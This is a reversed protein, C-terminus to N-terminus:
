LTARDLINGDVNFDLIYVLGNEYDDADDVTHAEHIGFDVFNDGVTNKKNYVWGVIQGAKTREFGLSEYVDNLFLYGRSRLLDNAYQQQCRLFQESYAPNKEWNPNREDFIRAYASATAHPEVADVTKSVEKPEGTKEDTVTDTIETAKVGHAFERDSAEGLKAVVGKRYAKFSNDVTAYAAALAIHRKRLLNHGTLIAIASICMVTAAPAYLKAVKVGTKAYVIFLDKKRDEEGYQETLTEDKAAENIREIDTNTESLIADLKLTAKCAMVTGAVAGVIGTVVLIEPSHIGLKFGAMSVARKINEAIKM